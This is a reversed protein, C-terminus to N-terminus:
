YKPSHCFYMSHSGARIHRWVASQEGQQELYYFRESVISRRCVPFFSLNGLKDELTDPLQSTTDWLVERLLFEIRDLQERCDLMEQLGHRWVVPSRTGGIFDGTAVHRQPRDFDDNLVNNTLTEDGWLFVANIIM